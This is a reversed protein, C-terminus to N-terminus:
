PCTSFANSDTIAASRRGLPNFYTRSRGTSMDTAKLTYEVDTTAAAYVWHRSFGTCANVVKVLFELNTDTFFWFLGSDDTLPYAHGSGRRGQYDHWEVEIQFRKHGLCIVTGADVCEDPPPALFFRRAVIDPPLTGGGLRGM